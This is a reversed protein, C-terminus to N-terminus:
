SNFEGTTQLNAFQFPRYTSASDTSVGVRKGSSGPYSHTKGASAGDVLARMSTHHGGRGHHDKWRIIFKQLLLLCIEACRGCRASSGLPAFMGLQRVKGSESPIYCAITKRDDGEVQVNYEQIRNRNEGEIWVEYGQYIMARVLSPWFHLQQQLSSTTRTQTRLRPCRSITPPQGERLVRSAIRDGVLATRKAETRCPQLARDM